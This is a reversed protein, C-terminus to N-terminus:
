NYEFIHTYVKFSVASENNAYFIEINYTVIIHINNEIIM